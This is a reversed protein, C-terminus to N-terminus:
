GEAESKRVVEGRREEKRMMEEPASAWGEDEDMPTGRGGGGEMLPVLSRGQVQPKQSEPTEVPQQLMQEIKMAVLDAELFSEETGQDIL